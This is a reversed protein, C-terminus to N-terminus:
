EAFLRPLLWLTFVILGAIMAFAYSYVFGTQLRRIKFAVATTAAAVGDPGLGDIIQGDGKKWFMAGLRLAPRVFVRDYLEDFYWKRFVFLYLPQIKQVVRLPFDTNIIYAYVAILFGILAALSPAHKVLGTVHHAADMVDEGVLRISDGWFQAHSAGVFTDYGMGGVVIAGLALLFLPILMVMPSEHPHYGATGEAAGQSAQAQHDRVAHCIHESRDWRPKGFFTLFMLRWSYFSTMLAAAIGLSYSYFGTSSHAAWASELIIDKSYYASLYPFGVIALTGILMFYFTYPIKTRLAGYNRMDQEHHMAHIVSGAGLFLLAKFFAHTYLHFIAAGYAGVGLAFFMYGLQSCTSYAIVRKIDFQTMGITAAFFATSAGVIAVVNGAFPAHEFLPSCRAVLFVGATVMTAAHILASVPTPGEMADPLWTHLGLQASKGM